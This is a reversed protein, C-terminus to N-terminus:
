GVPVREVVIIWLWRGEKHLVHWFGPSTPFDAPAERDARGFGASGFFGIVDIAGHRTDGQAEIRPV